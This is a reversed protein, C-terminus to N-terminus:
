QRLDSSREEVIAIAAALVETPEARQRYDPSVAAYRITATRDIVFTAPLPLAVADPQQGNHRALDLGRSMALDQVEQAVPHVIRFREAVHNGADTLVPFALAAKEATTLSEDPSEPSIAVLTVGAEALEPLLAQYARLELVCYPCWGGRYFTVIVPGSRVLEDLSVTRGLADPLAFAPAPDGVTLARDAIGADRVQAIAREYAELVHAPRTAAAESSRARLQEALSM